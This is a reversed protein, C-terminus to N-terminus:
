GQVLSEKKKKRASDEVWKKNISKQRLHFVQKKISTEFQKMEALKM